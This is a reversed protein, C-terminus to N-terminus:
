NKNLYSRRNSTKKKQHSSALTKSIQGLDLCLVNGLSEKPVMAMDISFVVEM